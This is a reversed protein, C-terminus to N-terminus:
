RTEGNLIKQLEARHRALYANDMAWKKILKDREATVDRLQQRLSDREDRTDAITMEYARGSQEYYDRENQVEALKATAETLETELHRSHETMENLAYGLPAPSFEYYKADTRPTKSETM